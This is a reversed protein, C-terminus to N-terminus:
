QGAVVVFRPVMRIRTLAARAADWAASAVQSRPAEMADLLAALPESVPAGTNVWVQEGDDLGGCVWEGSWGFKDALAKAAAKHNGDANLAHNWHLTVRQAPWGRSRDAKAGQAVIRSGRSNTPGVYYTRIAIM